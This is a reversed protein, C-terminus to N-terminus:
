LELQQGDIPTHHVEIKSQEDVLMRKFDSIGMQQHAPDASNFTFPPLETTEKFIFRTLGDHKEGWASYIGPKMQAGLALNCLTPCQRTPILACKVIANREITGKYACNGLRKLCDAAKSRHDELNIRGLAETLEHLNTPAYLTEAIYDEDPYICSVDLLSTDVRLVLAREAAGPEPGNCLANIAFKLGFARTLYVFGKKSARQMATAPLAGAVLGASAIQPHCSERTGHYLYRPVPPLSSGYDDHWM